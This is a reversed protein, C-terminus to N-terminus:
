ISARLWPKIKQRGAEMSGAMTIVSDLRRFSSNWILGRRKSINKTMTNEMEKFLETLM